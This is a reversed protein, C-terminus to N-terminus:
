ARAQLTRKRPHSERGPTWRTTGSRQTMTPYKKDLHVGALMRNETLVMHGYSLQSSCRSALYFASPELGESWVM